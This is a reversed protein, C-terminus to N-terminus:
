ENMPVLPMSNAAARVVQASSKGLKQVFMKYSPRYHGHLRMWAQQDLSYWFKRRPRNEQFDL